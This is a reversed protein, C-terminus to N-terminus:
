YINQLMIVPVFYALLLGSWIGAMVLVLVLFFKEYEFASTWTSTKSWGEVEMSRLKMSIQRSTPDVQLIAQRIFPLKCTRDSSM